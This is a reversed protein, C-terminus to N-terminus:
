GLMVLITDTHSLLGRNAIDGVVGGGGCDANMNRGSQDKKLFLFTTVDSLLITLHNGMIWKM